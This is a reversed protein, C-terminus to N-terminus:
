QDHKLEEVSVLKKIDDESLQVKSSLVVRLNIAHETKREAPTSPTPDVEPTPPKTELTTGDNEARYCIFTLERSCREDSWLGANGLDTAICGQQGGVNDPQGAKWNRYTSNSRDSWQRTRCLYLSTVCYEPAKLYGDGWGGKGCRYLGIWASRNKALIQIELNETKNHICVLDSHHKRCYKQAALWSMEQEVFVFRESTKGTGCIFPNKLFCKSDEWVGGSWMKVCMEEGNFNDPQGYDWNSYNSNVNSYHHGAVYSWRWSTLNDFLGIWATQTFGGTEKASNVLRNMDEINFITALDTYHRRCYTQANSWSLATNVFHYQLLSHVLPCLGALVLLIFGRWMMDLCSEECRSSSRRLPQDEVDSAVFKGLAAKDM